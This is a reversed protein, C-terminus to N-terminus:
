RYGGISNFLRDWVKTASEYCYKERVIKTNESLKKYLRDDNLLRIIANAFGNVDYPNDIVIANVENKAADTIDGVNPVVCPIGCAMAELMAMPLGEYYSTLVFIKASNYYHEPDKRFGLFEVNDTVGLQAALTKMSDMLPGDGVIGVTLNSKSKKVKAIVGLLTDVKKAPAIRGMFIIDYKKPLLLPKFREIDISDPLIFLKNKSIGQKLLFEKTKTGTTAIANCHKLMQIFRRKLHWIGPWDDIRAIAPKRLIKGCVFAYHAHPFIYFGVIADPKKIIAISFVLFFHWVTRLIGRLTLKHSPSRLWKPTNHRELKPKEPVNLDHVVYIQTIRESNILPRLVQENMIESYNISVLLKM